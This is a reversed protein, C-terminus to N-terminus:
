YFLFYQIFGLYKNQCPLENSWIETHQTNAFTILRQWRNNCFFWVWEIGKVFTSGLGWESWDGNNCRRWSPLASVDPKFDPHRHPRASDEETVNSIIFCSLYGVPLRNPYEKKVRCLTVVDLASCGAFVGCWIYSMCYLHTQLGNGPFGRLHSAQLSLSHALLQRFTDQFVVNWAKLDSLISM